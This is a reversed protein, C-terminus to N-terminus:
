SECSVAILPFDHRMLVDVAIRDSGFNARAFRFIDPQSELDGFSATDSVEPELREVFAPPAPASEQASVPLPIQVAVTLVWFAIGVATKM